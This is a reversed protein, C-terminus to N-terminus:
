GAGAPSCPSRSRTGSAAAGTTGTRGSRSRPRTYRRVRRRRGLRPQELQLRRGLLLGTAATHPFESDIRCPPLVRAPGCPQRGRAQPPGRRPRGPCWTVPGGLPPSERSRRPTADPRVTNMRRRSIVQGRRLDDVVPLISIFDILAPISPSAASTQTAQLPRESPGVLGDYEAAPRPCADTALTTPPARVPKPKLPLTLPKGVPATNRVPPPDNSAALAEFTTGLSVSTFDPPPNRQSAVTACPGSLPHAAPAPTRQSVACSRAEVRNRHVPASAALSIAVPAPVM